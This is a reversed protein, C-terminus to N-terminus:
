QPRRRRVAAFALIILVGVVVAIGIPVWPSSENETTSAPQQADPPLAAGSTAASTSVDAASDTSTSTSTSTATASSPAASVTADSPVPGVAFEYRGKVTHGDQSVVRYAVRYTGDGGGTLPSSMTSRNITPVQASVVTGDPATVVLAAGVDLLEEGFVLEVKAPLVQVLEGDMPSTSVLEAHASAAPASILAAFVIMALAMVAQAAWRRALTRTITM